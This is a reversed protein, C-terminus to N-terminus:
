SRKPKTTEIRHAKNHPLESYKVSTNKDLRRSLDPRTEKLRKETNHPLEGRKMYDMIHKM